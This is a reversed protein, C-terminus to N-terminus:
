SRILYLNADLLRHRCWLGLEGPESSEDHQKPPPRILLATMSILLPFVAMILIVFRPGAKQVLWGASWASVLSGVAQVLAESTLQLIM